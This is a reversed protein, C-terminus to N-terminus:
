LGFFFTHSYHIDSLSSLCFKPGWRRCINKGDTQASLRSGPKKSEPRSPSTWEKVQTLTLKNQRRAHTHIHTDSHTHTHAISSHGNNRAATQGPQLVHTPQTIPKSSHCETLTSNFLDLWSSRGSVVLPRERVCMCVCVCAWVSDKKWYTCISKKKKKKLFSWLLLLPVNATNGNLPRSCVFCVLATCHDFSPLVPLHM